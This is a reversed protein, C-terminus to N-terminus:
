SDNRKILNNSIMLTANTRQRVEEISFPHFLEVLKFGEECIEYVGMETIVMDVCQKATLPLTCTTVLKSEGKKNCQSMLIIVKKARSALETAGGMGPVKKGPIIWNALDGQSSVQLAGLVSMDIHRNRIIAFAEASDCYSGGHQLTVPFGGANCLNEEEEGRAPSPGLGIVGNEGHFFVRREPPLYNPIFSPIGIGLNVIMRNQIEEAARKALKYKWGDGVDM